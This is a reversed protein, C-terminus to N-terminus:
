WLSCSHQLTKKIIGYKQATSQYNHLFLLIGREATSFLSNNGLPSKRM